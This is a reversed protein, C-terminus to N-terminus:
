AAPTQILLMIDDALEDFADQVETLDGVGVPTPPQWIVAEVGISTHDWFGYQYPNRLVFSNRNLQNISYHRLEINKNFKMWVQNFYAQVGGASQYPSILKRMGLEVYGAIDSDCYYKLISNGSPHDGVIAEVRLRHTTGKWYMFVDFTSSVMKSSEDWFPPVETGPIIFEGIISYLYNPDLNGGDNAHNIPVDLPNVQMTSYTLKDFYTKSDLIATILQDFDFGYVKDANVANNVKLVIFDEMLAQLSKGGISGANDASAANNVKIGVVDVMIQNYTKGQLTSADGTAQIIQNTIEQLTKGELKFADAAKGTLIDAKAEPYTKGDFKTANGGVDSTIQSILEQKTSGGLRDSNTAIAARDAIGATDARIANNVKTAIVDLMIAALTKGGLRTSDNATGTTLLYKQFMLDIQSYTYAGTQNATVRHSNTRDNMHAILAAGGEGGGGGGGGINVLYAQYFNELVEYIEKMGVMDALNWPHDIVPFDVPREVVQEWTTTRPNRTQNALIEIIKQSDITWIDGLTNYDAILVGVINRRLFTISGWIPHMTANSADKFQNSLYYDVGKQLETVSGDTSRIKLVLGEEFMPAFKVMTFHYRRDGPATIIIQEGTIRNSPAQGTPDFPYSVVDAM